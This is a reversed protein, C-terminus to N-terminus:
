LARRRPGLAAGPVALLTQQVASPNPGPKGGQVRSTLRVRGLVRTWPLDQDRDRGFELPGQTYFRPWRARFEAFEEEFTPDVADPDLGDWEADFRRLSRTNWHTLIQDTCPPRRPRLSRTM